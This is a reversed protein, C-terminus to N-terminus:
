QWTRKASVSFPCATFAPDGISAPAAMFSNAAPSLADSSECNSTKSSFINNARPILPVAYPPFDGNEIM